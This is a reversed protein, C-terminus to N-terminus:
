QRVRESEIVETQIFSPPVPEMSGGPFLVLGIPRNKLPDMSGVPHNGTEIERFCDKTPPERNWTPFRGSPDHEGKIEGVCALDYYIEGRQFFFFGRM